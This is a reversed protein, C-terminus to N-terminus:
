GGLADDAEPAYSAPPLPYMNEIKQPFNLFFNEDQFGFILM